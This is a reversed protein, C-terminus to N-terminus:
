GGNRSDRYAVLKKLPEINWDPGGAGHTFFTVGLEVFQDLIEPRAQDPPIGVSREIEAPDRGAKRCWENLVETKHRLTDLDSFSHWITAHEAVLRLTVREGGGGIMLPMPNRQPPPNGKAMREKIVPLADRLHRLRSPADGFEYGFEEYDRQFWGAGIGLILRGGSIHDVTRAMDALLNPNRYTNCTVLAGIEVRETCEAMAGLLTWCEFHPGDPDGYLPFFHDWTTVVDAGYEEARLWADRMDALSGQQPQIQAGVRIKPV